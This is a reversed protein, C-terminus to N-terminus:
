HIEKKIFSIKVSKTVGDPKVGLDELIAMVAENKQNTPADSEDIKKAAEAKKAAMKKDINKPDLNAREMLERAIQDIDVVAESAAHVPQSRQTQTLIKVDSHETSDTLKIGIDELINKIANDKDSFVPEKKLKKTLDAPPITTEKRPAKTKPKLNEVIKKITDDKEAPEVPEKGLKKTLDAPPIITEKRPAKTKPKLNEVIKKVASDKKVPEIAKKVAKKVAEEVTKKNDVKKPDAKKADAKKKDDAKKDEVLKKADAKKKDDVLKKADAKKKDDVKKEDAAKQEEVLKKAEVLKKVTEDIKKTRVADLEVVNNKVVKETIDEIAPVINKERLEEAIQKIGKERSKTKPPPSVTEVKAEKNKSQKVDIEDEASGEAQRNAPKVTVNKPTSSYIEADGVVNLTGNFPEFYYGDGVVQLSCPYATQQIFPLPPVTCIWKDGHGERECPFSIDMGNASITFWVRIDPSTLGQVSVNLEFTNEKTNNITVINEM